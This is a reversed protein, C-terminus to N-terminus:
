IKQFSSEDLVSRKKGLGQQEFDQVRQFMWEFDKVDLLSNEEIKKLQTECWDINNVIFETNGEQILDEPSSLIEIRKKKHMAQSFPLLQLTTEWNKKISTLYDKFKKKNEKTQNEKLHNILTKIKGYHNWKLRYWGVSSKNLVNNTRRIIKNAGKNVMDKLRSM